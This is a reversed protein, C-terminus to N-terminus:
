PPFALPQIKTTTTNYFTSFPKEIEGIKSGNFYEMQVFHASLVVLHLYFKFVLKKRCDSFINNQNKDCTLNHIESASVYYNEIL